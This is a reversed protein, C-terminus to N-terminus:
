GPAGAERFITPALKSGRGRCSLGSINLCRVQRRAKRAAVVAHDWLRYDTMPGEVSFARNEKDAIIMYFSAGYRERPM